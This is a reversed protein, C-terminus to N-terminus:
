ISTLNLAKMVNEIEELTIKIQQYRGVEREKELYPFWGIEIYKRKTNNIRKYLEQIFQLQEIATRKKHITYLMGQETVKYRVYNILDNNLNRVNWNTLDKFRVFELMKYKPEKYTPIPKNAQSLAYDIKNQIARDNASLQKELEDRQQLLEKMAKNLKKNNSNNTTTKIKLGVELVM